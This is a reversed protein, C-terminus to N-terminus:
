VGCEKMFNMLEEYAIKAAQSPKSGMAGAVAEALFETNVGYGSDPQETGTNKAAYGSVMQRVAGVSGDDARGDFLRKATREAVVDAVKRGAPLVGKDRAVAELAKELVHTFEHAVVSTYDTGEPHYREDVDKKYAAQAKPNSGNWFESNFTLTRKGENFQAYTDYGTWETNLGNVNGKVLPFADFMKELGEAIMVSTEDGLKGLDVRTNGEFTGEGGFWGRAKIYDVADQKTRCDAATKFVSLTKANRAGVYAAYKDAEAEIADVEEMAKDRKKVTKNYEREKAKVEDRRAKAYRRASLYVRFDAYMEHLVRAKGPDPENFADDNMKEVLEELEADKMKPLKKITDEGVKDTWSNRIIEIEESCSNEAQEAETRADKLEREADKEYVRADNLKEIAKKWRKEADEAEEATYPVVSTKAPMEARKPGASEAQVPTEKESGSTKASRSIKMGKLNGGSKAVGNEGVLVHTGNITIWEEKDERWRRFMARRGRVEEIKKRARGTM